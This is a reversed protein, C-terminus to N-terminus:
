REIRVRNVPKWQVLGVLSGYDLGANRSAMNNYVVLPLFVLRGRGILKYLICYVNQIFNRFFTYSVSPIYYLIGLYIRYLHIIKKLFCSLFKM